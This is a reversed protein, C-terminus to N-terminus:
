EHQTRVDKFFEKLKTAEKHQRAEDDKRAQEKLAQLLAKSVLPHDGYALQIIEENSM